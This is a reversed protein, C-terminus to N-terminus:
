GAQRLLLPVGQQAVGVGAVDGPFLVLVVLPLQPLVLLHPVGVMATWSACPQGQQLSQRQTAKAAVGHAHGVVSLASLEDGVVFAVAACLLAAFRWALHNVASADISGDALQQDFGNRRQGQLDGERDLLFDLGPDLFSIAQPTSLDLAGAVLGLQRLAAVQLDIGAVAQHRANSVSQFV